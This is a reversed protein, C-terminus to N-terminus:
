HNAGDGEVDWFAHAVHGKGTNGTKSAGCTGQFMGALMHRTVKATTGKRVEAACQSLRVDLPFVKSSGKWIENSANTCPM